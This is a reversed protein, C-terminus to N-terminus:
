NPQCQGIMWNRAYPNVIALYVLRPLDYLLFPFVKGFYKLVGDNKFISYYRNRWCLYQRMNENINSSGGSHYCIAGPSFILRWGNKRARWSLDVDEVLFFFREDFYGSEEKLDELMSKRYFAAASCVGFINQAAAKGEDAQGRGIDYFRRLGTLYIGYSYITKQDKMLMKPQIMGVRSDHISSILDRTVKLFDRELVVDCDLTLVWEGKALIIGQNRAKCAGLNSKNRILKVQPYHKQIFEVTGDLSGNDVVIVELDSSDQIFLSDLCTKIFRLSNYTLIIVSIM